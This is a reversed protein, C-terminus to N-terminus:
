ILSIISQWGLPNYIYISIYGYINPVDQQALHVVGGAISDYLKASTVKAFYEVQESEIIVGYTVQSVFKVKNPTSLNV